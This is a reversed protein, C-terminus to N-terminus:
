KGQWWDKRSRPDLYAGCDRIAARIERDPATGFPQNARLAPLAFRGAVDSRRYLALLSPDVCVNEVQVTYGGVVNDERTYKLTVRREEAYLVLAIYGGGYIEAGRGPAYLPEGARTALGLLTVPPSTIAGARCGDVGCDWNWQYVQHGSTFGPLRRDAFMGPFQPAGGDVGVVWLDGTYADKMADGRQRVYAVQRGDPSIQPDTAWQLEFVDAAALPPAAHSIPAIAAILCLAFLARLTM